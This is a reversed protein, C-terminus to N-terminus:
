HLKVHDKGIVEVLANMGEDASVKQPLRVAQKNKEGLVLVVETGGPHADLVKKIALLKDEEKSSALRIYLRKAVNPIKPKIAEKGKPLKARKGSQKFNKSTDSTLEEASNVMRKREDGIAGNRDKANVKGKVLLVKDITWVDETEVYIGPVCVM